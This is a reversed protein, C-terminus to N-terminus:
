HTGVRSLHTRDRNPYSSTQASRRGAAPPCDVLSLSGAEVARDNEWTGLAAADDLLMQKMRCVLMARFSLRLSGVSRGLVATKMKSLFSNTRGSSERELGRSLHNLFNAPFVSRANTSSIEAKLMQVTARTRLFALPRTVARDTAFDLRPSMSAVIEKMLYKNTRLRDPLRRATELLRRSLLPNVVEVYSLKLDSLASLVTPLKFGHFLRDRWAARTEGYRRLLHAPSEQAALLEYEDSYKLLDRHDAYTPCYAKHRVESATPLRLKMTGVGQDGRLVGLIGDQFLQRWTEFGDIYGYVLDTRGEGLRVFRDVIERLPKAPFCYYKHSVGVSEAVERAVRADNGPAHLYSDQLGWTLTRFRRVDRGASRLSYLIARSDVGGSLALGWEAFDPDFSSFVAELSERLLRRHNVDTAKSPAFEIPNSRMSVTWKRKDLTVSSDPPLAKVRRDWSFLPGLTGTSLMWPIVRENFEFSGLFTVIARQSTSSLFLEEDLYYWITRSGAPDTAIELCEAGDRFLAYSGDLSTAPANWQVTDPEFLQGLVVSGGKELLPLSPNMVGYATNGAVVVRPAPPTINDPELRTCITRLRERISTPLRHRACVHIIKAVHSAKGVPWTYGM